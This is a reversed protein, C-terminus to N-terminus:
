PALQVNQAFSPVILLNIQWLQLRNFLDCVQKSKNIDVTELARHDSGVGLYVEEALDGFILVIEAEGSTQDGIAELTETQNLTSVSAPFLTSVELPEPM